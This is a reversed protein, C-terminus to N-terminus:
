DETDFVVTGLQTDNGREKRLRKAEKFQESLMSFDYVVQAQPTASIDANLDYVLNQIVKEIEEVKLPAEGKAFIGDIEIIDQLTYRHQTRQYIEELRAVENGQIRQNTHSLEVSYIARMVRKRINEQERKKRKPIIDLWRYIPVGFFLVSFIFPIWGLGVAIGVDIGTGEETLVAVLFVISMLLNISAMFVIGINRGISNGTLKYEPEYENWYWIVQTDSQDNKTRVLSRFYGYLIQNDSIVPEGDFRAITESFFDDAKEANWGALGIMEPKIIIGKNQRLYAAVEQQNELPHMEVRPPGFVFDYVSAVFGKGSKKNSKNPLTSHRADYARYRYGRSDTEYHYSQTVTKWYFIEAFARFIFGFSSGIDIKSDNDKGGSLAAIIVAIIIVVFVTFYVVLTISIWVKFVVVFINWAQKKFSQWWEGWTREGRRMPTKGFDYILDGDETIQLRCKYKTVLFDMVDKADRLSLGSASSADGITFVGKGSQLSSEIKESASQLSPALSKGKEM